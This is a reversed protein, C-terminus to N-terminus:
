RLVVKDRSVFRRLMERLCELEAEILALERDIMSTSPRAKITVVDSGRRDQELWGDVYDYGVIHQARHPIVRIEVSM